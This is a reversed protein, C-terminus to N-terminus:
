KGQVMQSFWEGVINLRLQAACAGPYEMCRM